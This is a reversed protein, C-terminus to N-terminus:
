IDRCRQDRCSKRGAILIQPGIIRAVAHASDAETELLCRRRGELGFGISDAWGRFIVKDVAQVHKDIPACIRGKEVVLGIHVGGSHIERGDVRFVVVHLTGVEIEKGDGIQIAGCGIVKRLQALLLNGRVISAQNRKFGPVETGM